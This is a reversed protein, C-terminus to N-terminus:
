RRAWPLMTACDQLPAAQGAGASLALWILAAAPWGYLRLGLTRM